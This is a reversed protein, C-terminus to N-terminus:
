RHGTAKYAARAQDPTSSLSPSKMQKGGGPMQMQGPAQTPTFASQNSFISGQTMSSDLPQGMFSALGLRTKYPVMGFSTKYDIIESMLKENLREYLAPYLNQLHKVDTTTVSGNKIKNMILLPREAIKLAERYIADQASNAPMAPDLPMTPPKHPQLSQLYALGTAATQALAAAHEPMYHGIKGSVGMMQSPDQSVENIRTQLKDLEKTSPESILERSTSFISKVVNNVQREGRIIQSGYESAARLASGSPNSALIPKILTPLISNIKDSLMHEGLAVGYYPHGVASGAFGGIAGAVMKGMGKRLLYDAAKAGLSEGAKVNALSDPASVEIGAKELTAKYKDVAKILSDVVLKSEPATLKAPDISLEAHPAIEITKGTAQKTFPDYVQKTGTELQSVVASAEMPQKTFPDIRPKTTALKTEFESLAPALEAQAKAVVPHESAETLMSKVNKYYDALEMHVAQMPEPKDLQQLLRGKFDEVFQGAKSEVLAKYGTSVTGLGGGAVAGLLGSLGVNALATQASQQPDSTIFKSVEDGTQFLANEVAGRAAMTAIKSGMLEPIAAGAKALAAGEGLGLMASGVVGAAQGIGHMGPNAARRDRIDEPSANELKTGLGFTAGSLAGEGLAKLQETPANFHAERVMGRLGKADPQKYGQALLDPVAEPPASGQEGSPSILAVEHVESPQEVNEALGSDKNIYVPM